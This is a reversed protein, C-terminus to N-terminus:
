SIDIIALIIEGNNENQRILILTPSINIKLIKLIDLLHQGTRTKEKWRRGYNWYVPTGQYYVTDALVNIGSTILTLSLLLVSIKKKM